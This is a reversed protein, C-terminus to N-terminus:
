LSRWQGFRVKSASPRRSGGEPRKSVARGMALV